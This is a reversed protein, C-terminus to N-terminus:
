LYKRLEAAVEEATDGHRFHTIYEGDPGMLYTFASHDMLYDSLEESKVKKSYVRYASTVQTIDEPSGTLAQFGEYFNSIYNKMKEVTDRQPDITIFIPQIAEKKDGLSKIAASLTLLDTPCIDPCSTFGFYVLMHKGRFTESSIQEGNQNTLVFDGGILAKGSSTESISNTTQKSFLPVNKELWNYIVYTLLIAMAPIFLFRWTAALPSM